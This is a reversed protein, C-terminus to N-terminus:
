QLNQLTQKSTLIKLRSFLDSPRSRDSVKDAHALM